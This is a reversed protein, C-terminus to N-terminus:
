KWWQTREPCLSHLFSMQDALIKRNKLILWEAYNPTYPVAHLKMGAEEPTRAAKRQNCRRCATVLNTWVDKGDRSAPIVHDRTLNKDSFEKLCYLCTHRDRSFLERNSLPPVDMFKSRKTNGRVSVVPHVDLYSRENRMRNVGGFFRHPKDGLTWAVQDKAYHVAADEWSIWSMPQGGIDLKLILATM